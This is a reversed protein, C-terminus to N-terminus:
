VNVFKPNTLFIKFEEQTKQSSITLIPIKKSPIYFDKKISPHLFIIPTPHILKENKIGKRPVCSSFRDPYRGVLEDNIRDKMAGLVIM